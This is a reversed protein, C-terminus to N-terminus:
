VAALRISLRLTSTNNFRITQAFDFFGTANSETRGRPIKQSRKAARLIVLLPNLSDHEM